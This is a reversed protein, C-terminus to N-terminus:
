QNMSSRISDLGLSVSTKRNGSTFQILPLHGSLAQESRGFHAPASNEGDILANMYLSDNDCEIGHLTFQFTVRGQSEKCNWEMHSVRSGSTNAIAITGKLLWKLAEYVSERPANVDSNFPSRNGLNVNIQAVELLHYNETLLKHFEQELSVQAAQAEIVPTVETKEKPVPVKITKIIVKAPKSKRGFYFGLISLLVTSMLVNIPLSASSKKEAVKEGISFKEKSAEPKIQDIQARLNKIFSITEPGMGLETKQINVTPRPAGVEDIAKNISFVHKTWNLYFNAPMGRSVMRADEKKIWAKLAYVRKPHGFSTARMAEYMFNYRETASFNKLHDYAYVISTWLNRERRDVIGWPISVSKTENAATKKIKEDHKIKGDITKLLNTLSPNSGHSLPIFFLCLILIFCSKM